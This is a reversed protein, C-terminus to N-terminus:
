DEIRIIKVQGLLIYEAQRQLNDVIWKSQERHSTNPCDALDEFEQTISIFRDYPNQPPLDQIAQNIRHLLTLSPLPPFELHAHLEQHTEKVMPLLLGHQNIFKRVIPGKGKATCRSFVHHKNVKSKDLTLGHINTFEM